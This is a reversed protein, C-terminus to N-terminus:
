VALLQRVRLALFDKLAFDIRNGQSAIMWTIGPTEFDADVLLVRGRAGSRNQKPDALERALALCHLTRGTGGKFSHFACIRVSELL